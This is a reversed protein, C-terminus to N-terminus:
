IAQCQPLGKAEMVLTQCDSNEKKNWDGQPGHEVKQYGLFNQTRTRHSPSLDERLSASLANHRDANQLGNPIGV